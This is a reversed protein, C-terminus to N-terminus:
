AALGPHSAGAAAVLGYIHRVGRRAEAVISTWLQQSCIDRNLPANRARRFAEQLLRPDIEDLTRPESLIQM